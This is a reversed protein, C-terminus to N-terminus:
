YDTSQVGMNLTFIHVEILFRPSTNPSYLSRVQRRNFVQLLHVSKNYAGVSSPLKM